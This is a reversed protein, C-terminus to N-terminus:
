VQIISISSYVVLTSSITSSILHIKEISTDINAIRYLKSMTSYQM